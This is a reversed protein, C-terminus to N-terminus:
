QCHMHQFDHVLVLLAILPITCLTKHCLSIHIYMCPTCQDRGATSRPGGLLWAGHCPTCRDRGGGWYDPVTAPRVDIEARWYDPVTAPHVDIEAGLLWAGHCPTCRDRGGGLLWAGHCPTCRDRGELLWAGHCPTCRDWGGTILCRPLTYMSRPGWSEPVTAPRVDIEAGWYDPVTAPRVDIEAGLLWAGHCPTCRDRGGWYDPVTAPRVDIEAGLLWAGHCPTCRDRGGTILCRPLTYMSRPGCDIEAGWYDPVHCHALPWARSQRGAVSQLGIPHTHFHSVACYNPGTTLGEILIQFVRQKHLM